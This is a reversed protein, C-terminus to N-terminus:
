SSKQWDPGLWGFLWGDLWMEVALVVCPPPDNQVFIENTDCDWDFRHVAFRRRLHYAAVECMQATLIKFGKSADMPDNFVRLVICNTESPKSM